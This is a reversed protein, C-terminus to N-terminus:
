PIVVTNHVLLYMLLSIGLSQIDKFCNIGLTICRQIDSIHDVLTSSLDTLVYYNINFYFKVFMTKHSMYIAIDKGLIM